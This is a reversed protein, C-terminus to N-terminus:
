GDLKGVARACGKVRLTQERVSIGSEELQIVRM